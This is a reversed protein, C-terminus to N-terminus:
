PPTQAGTGPYSIRRLGDDPQVPRLKGMLQGLMPWFFDAGPYGTIRGVERGGNALVFTPTMTVPAALAVGSTAAQSIDVRRLPARKGEDTNPYAPGVERHWRVCWPCGAEEFMVLEAGLAAVASVPAALCLWGLVASVLIRRTPGLM